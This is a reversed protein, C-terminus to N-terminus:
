LSRDLYISRTSWHKGTNFASSFNIFLMIVYSDQNGMHFSALYIALSIPDIIVDNQWYTYQHLYLTAPISVQIHPMVLQTVCKM